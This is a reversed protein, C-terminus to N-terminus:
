RERRSGKRLVADDQQVPQGAGLRGEEEHLLRQFTEVEGDDALGIWRHVLRDVFQDGIDVCRRCLAALCLADVEDGM